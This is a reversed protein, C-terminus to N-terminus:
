VLEMRQRRLGMYTSTAHMRAIDHLFIPDNMAQFLALYNNLYKTAVGNFKRMFRKLGSHLSNVTQIHYIGNISNSKPMQKLPIERQDAFKRYAQQKDTVLVSKEGIKGDFHNELNRNSMRGLCVARMFTNKSRDTAALVCVQQKSIGRKTVSKGRRRAPRPLNSKQGKFSLAFFTEDAEVVGSLKPKAIKSIATLIKHRWYFATTVNMQLEAAIYRISRGDFMLDMYTSWTSLSKKSKHFITKTKLSFSRSCSNCKYRQVGRTRGNRHIKTSECHPCAFNNIASEEFNQDIQIEDPQELLRKLQQKQDSNLIRFFANIDM